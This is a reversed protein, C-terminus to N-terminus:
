ASKRTNVNRNSKGRVDDRGSTANRRECQEAHWILKLLTQRKAFSLTHTLAELAIHKQRKPHM